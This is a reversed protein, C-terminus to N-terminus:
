KEYHANEWFTLINESSYHANQAQRQHPLEVSAPISVLQTTTDFQPELTFSHESFFLWPVNRQVRLCLLRIQVFVLLPSASLKHM